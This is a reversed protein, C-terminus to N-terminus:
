AESEKLIEAVIRDYRSNARFVYLGTLVITLVIVGTAIPIGISTVGTGLPQALFAKDFAVLGIFGYYAIFIVITLIWGLVNRERKLAQYKPNSQIRAIRPDAGPAIAPESM